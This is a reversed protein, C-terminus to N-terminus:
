PAPEDEADELRGHAYWDHRAGLDTVGMDTALRGILTLPHEEQTEAISEITVIYKTNPQLDVVGEPCLVKGDFVVRLKKTM